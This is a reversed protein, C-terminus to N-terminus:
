WYKPMKKKLLIFSTHQEIYEGIILQKMIRSVMERSSGVMNAIDQHTVKPNDIRNNEDALKELTHIVRGYVDLLALDRVSETLARIRKTLECIMFQSFEQNNKLLDQFSARSIAIFECPSVTMVSASRPEGDLLSLEGFYEGETMFNLIVQRGDDGTLFVSVKGKKIIYLHNSEDGETVLITNKPYSRTVSLKELQELYQEPVNAFLSVNKLM